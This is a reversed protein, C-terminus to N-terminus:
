QEHQISEFGQKYIRWRGDEIRLWCAGDEGGLSYCALACSSDSNLTPVCLTLLVGGLNEYVRKKAEALPLLVIERDIGGLALGAQNLPRSVRNTERLALYADTPGWEVPPAQAQGWCYWDTPGTSDPIVLAATTRKIMEQIVAQYIRTETRLPSIM